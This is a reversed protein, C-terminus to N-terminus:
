VMLLHVLAKVGVKLSEELMQKKDYETTEGILSLIDLNM